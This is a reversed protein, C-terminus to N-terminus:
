HITKNDQENFANFLEAYQKIQPIEKLAFISLISMFLNRKNSSMAEIFIMMSFGLDDHNQKIQGVALAKLLILCDDETTQTAADLLESGTSKNENKEDESGQQNDSDKVM